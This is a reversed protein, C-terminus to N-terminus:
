SALARYRFDRLRVRGQGAAYIGVKLSLFGGFVNHHYGSVEMRLPHLTWSRGGDKSYRFTV